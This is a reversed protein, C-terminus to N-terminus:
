EEEMLQHRLIERQLKEETKGVEACLKGWQIVFDRDEKFEAKFLLEKNGYVTIKDIIENIKAKLDILKNQLRVESPYIKRAM